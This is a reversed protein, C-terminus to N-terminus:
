KGQKWKRLVDPANDSDKIYRALTDRAWKWEPVQISAFMEWCWDESVAILGVIMRRQINDGAHARLIASILAHSNWNVIIDRLDAGQLDAGQLNAHRLNAHRLDADQLNAHRLNAGQLNARRLHAGQLNANRLHAGQLHAGQLDVRRLDAGQLHAGQLDADQLDADRLHAGERVAKVVTNRLDLDEASYLVAGTYRHKIETV